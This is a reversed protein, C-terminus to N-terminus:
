PSMDLTPQSVGYRSLFDQKKFHSGINKISLRTRELVSLIKKWVSGHDSQLAAAASDM